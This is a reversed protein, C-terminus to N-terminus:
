NLSGNGTVAATTSASSHQADLSGSGEVSHSGANVSQDVSGAVGLNSSPHTSPAAKAPTAKPAAATPAVSVNSAQKSATANSTAAVNEGAQATSQVAGNTKDVTNKAADTVPKTKVSPLSGTAQGQTAFSGAGNIGRGGFGNLNGNLGGGLSGGAGGMLGAHAPSTLALIVAASVGTLIHKTNM